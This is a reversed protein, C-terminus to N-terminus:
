FLGDFWGKKKPKDAAPSKAEKGPGAPESSDKGAKLREAEKAADIVDASEEAPEQWFLIKDVITEDKDILSATEANLVQRINPDASSGGTTDLLVAEGSTYGMANESMGESGFLAQQASARPELQAPNPAGPRPPRLSYDPPLVLPPKTVVTFEDPAVKQMGFARRASTCGGISVAAVSFAAALLALNALKMNM